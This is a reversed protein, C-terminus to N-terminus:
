SLNHKLIIYFSKNRRLYMHSSLNIITEIIADRDAGSLVCILLSSVQIPPLLKYHNPMNVVLTDGYTFFIRNSSILFSGLYEFITSIESILILM